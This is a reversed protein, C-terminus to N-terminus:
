KGSLIKGKDKSEVKLKKKRECGREEDETDFSERPQIETKITITVFKVEGTTHQVKGVEKIDVKNNEAVKGQINKNNIIQNSVM